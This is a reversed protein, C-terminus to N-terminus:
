VLLTATALFVSRVAHSTRETYSCFASGFRRCIVTSYYRTSATAADKPNRQPSAFKMFTVTLKNEDGALPTWGYASNDDTTRKETHKTALCYMRCCYHRFFHTFLFNGALFVITCRKVRQVTCRGQAGCHVANCVSPCLCLPPCVVNHHWYGIM